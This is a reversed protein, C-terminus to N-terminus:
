GGALADLAQPDLLVIQKRALRVWGRKEFAKLQRSIVERATGLDRALERHSVSIAAGAGRASLWRALRVEIQDIVLTELLGLLERVRGGFERTVFERFGRSRDFALHFDRAAILVAHSDRETHADASYRGGALLISASLLCSAGGTLRYLVMERGSPFSKFVRAAGDVLLLYDHCPDGERFLSHAPPLLLERARPAVTRWCEDAVDRLGPFASVWRAADGHAQVSTSGAPM